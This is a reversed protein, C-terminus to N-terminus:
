NEFCCMKYVYIHIKYEINEPQIIYIRIVFLLYGDFVATM